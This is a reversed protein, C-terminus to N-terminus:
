LNAFPALFLAFIGSLLVRGFCASFRVVKLLPAIDRLTSGVAAGVVARLEAAAFVRCRGLPLSFKPIKQLKVPQHLCKRRIYTTQLKFSAKRYIIHKKGAQSLREDGWMKKIRACWGKPILMRAPEQEFVEIRSIEGPLVTRCIDSSEKCSVQCLISSVRSCPQFRGSKSGVLM